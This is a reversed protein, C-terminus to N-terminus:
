HSSSARLELVNISWPLLRFRDHPLTPKVQVLGGEGAYSFRRAPQVPGCNASMVTLDLAKEPEHNLAIVVLTGDERRTAFVSSLGGDSNKASVSLDGARAGAGDYNRFARFGWYAASGKPPLAWYFAAEVGNLGFRGLAEAVALGGSIHNEAGFNYEGISIGLGPDEEDIFTRLRPILKMPEAVWSEDKYSPDWLARVSRIRRASSEPDIWGDTYLGIGAAQPYFHVDVLDVLKKGTRKQYARMQGLWWPLFQKGGHAFRDSPLHASAGEMKDAASFFLASWGWAVFGAIRAQPDAARVASGYAVTRELLEDYSLREPHVDRHNVHWLTPENDLFYIRASRPAPDKERIAKVWEGVFEPPAPVSTREPPGPAIEAASPSLGNGCGGREPDVKNQDGFISLPFGCSTADKAVWGIMPLTFATAAGHARDQELFAVWNKDTAVNSFFWDRGTNWGNGLKWNYRTTPNGGWRRASAGLEWATQEDGFSVGYILPSIPRSVRCDIMVTANRAPARAASRERAGPPAEATFGLMEIEVMQPSVSRVARLILQDFPDDLPDLVAFPIWVETWGDASRQMFEPALRIRPFASRSRSGLSVDLFDGFAAPARVRLFLGGFPPEIREHGLIWGAFGSFDLRAPRGAALSRPAWGLDTWGPALKGEKFVPISPTPTPPLDAPAGGALGAWIVLAPLLGRRM